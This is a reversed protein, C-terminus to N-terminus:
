FSNTVSLQKICITRENMSRHYIKYQKKGNRKAEYMASDANSMLELVDKGDKPYSAIGISVGLHFDFNNISFAQKFLDMMKNAENQVCQLSTCNEILIIFEDGSLRAVFNVKGFEENIRKSIAILLLDGLHHGLSDNVYKFRDVDLNFITFNVAKNEVLVDLKNLFSRRNPLGTLSDQFAMYQLEEEYQKRETIDRKVIVVKEIEGNKNIFPTGRAEVWVWENNKRKLRCEVMQGEKKYVGALFVQLVKKRDEPHIYSYLNQKELAQPQVGLITEHSPSAYIIKGKRNVVSILDTSYETITRYNKESERLAQEAKKRKTIDHLVTQFARRGLYTIPITTVEAHITQENLKKILLETHLVNKLRALTMTINEELEKNTFSYIPREYIENKEKAGLIEVGANNIYLINMEDHVIIMYPTHEILQQYRTESETLAQEMRVQETMDKYMATAGIVVGDKGKIPHYSALVHVNKGDKRTRETYHFSIVEGKLIRKLINKQDDKYHTPIISIDKNTLIEQETYGLLKTFTPNVRVINTYRDIMFVADATNNWLLDLQDKMELHLPHSKSNKFDSLRKDM